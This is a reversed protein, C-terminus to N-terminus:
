PGVPLAVKNHFYQTSWKVDAPNATINDTFAFVSLADGQGFSQTDAGLFPVPDNCTTDPDTIVCSVGCNALNFTGNCLFFFYNIPLGLLPDVGPHHDVNVWLDAAVGGESMPVQVAESNDSGNGPGMDLLITNVTNIFTLETGEM